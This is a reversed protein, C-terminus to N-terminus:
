WILGSVREIEELSVEFNKLSVGKPLAENPVIWAFVEETNEAFAVKGFHTPVAVGNKGIVEYHVFRKGVAPTSALYLPITIVHLAVFQESLIRLHEELKRWLGRNFRPDQPSVNSLYFCDSVTKKSAKQDAFPCLHGRDYGSNRYDEVVARLIKPIEPDSRFEASKLETPEKLSQATLKEYAWRANRTRGDYAIVMGERHILFISEPLYSNREVALLANALCILVFFLRKM